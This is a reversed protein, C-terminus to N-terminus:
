NKTLSQVMRRISGKYIKNFANELSDQQSHYQIYDIFFANQEADIKTKTKLAMTSDYIFSDIKCKINYLFKQKAIINVRNAQESYFKKLQINSESLLQNLLNYKTQSQKYLNLNLTDTSLFQLTAKDAIFTALNENLDVNSADYYTAHFLEHFLLNCFDGKEKNLHSSLLPDSLWGLTSWASVPRISVDYGNCKLKNLEIEALNKDFFGKYSVDGILPFRWLYPVLSYNESASIVYLIPKENQNFITEFNSTPKYGLSDVSYKKLQPILDLLALQKENLTGKKKFEDISETHFLISFQGKAQHILYITTRYHWGSFWLVILM